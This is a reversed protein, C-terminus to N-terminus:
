CGPGPIQHQFNMSWYVYVTGLLPLMLDFMGRALAEAATLLLM